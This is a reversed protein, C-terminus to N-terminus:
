CDRLGFIYKQWQDSETVKYWWPFIQKYADTHQPVIASSKIGLVRNPSVHICSHVYLRLM